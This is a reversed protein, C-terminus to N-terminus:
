ENEAICVTCNIKPDAAEGAFDLFAIRVGAHVRIFKMTTVPFFEPSLVSRDDLYESVMEIYKMTERYKTQDGKLFELGTQLASSSILYSWNICWLDQSLSIKGLSSEKWPPLIKHLANSQAIPPLSNGFLNTTISEEAQPLIVCGTWNQADGVNSLEKFTESLFIHPDEEAVVNGQSIAGRLPFGLAFFKEMLHTTAFIFDKVSHVDIPKSVLVITDFVFEAIEFNPEPQSPSGEVAKPSFAIEKASRLLEAYQQVVLSLQEPRKIKQSFGLVDLMAILRNEYLQM